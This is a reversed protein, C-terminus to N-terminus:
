VNFPACPVLPLHLAPVKQLRQLILPTSTWDTSMWLCCLGRKWVASSMISGWWPRRTSRYTVCSAWSPFTARWWLRASHPIYDHPANCLNTIRKAKQFFFFDKKEGLKVIIGESISRRRDPRCLEPSFRPQACRLRQTKLPYHQLTALSKM